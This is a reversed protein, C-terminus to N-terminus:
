SPAQKTQTQTEPERFASEAEELRRQDQESLDLSKVENPDDRSEKWRARANAFQAMRRIVEGRLDFFKRVPTGVFSVVIWGVGGAAFAGLAELFHM